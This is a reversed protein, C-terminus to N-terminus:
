YAKLDDRFSPPKINGGQSRKASENKEGSSPLIIRIKYGMKIHQACQYYYPKGVDGAAPTWQLDGHELGPHHKEGGLPSRTIYFPHGPANIRFTYTVGATLVLRPTFVGDILYRNHGDEEGVEVHFVKGDM